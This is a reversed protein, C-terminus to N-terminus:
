AWWVQRDVQLMASATSGHATEKKRRLGVKLVTSPDHRASDRGGFRAILRMAFCVLIM